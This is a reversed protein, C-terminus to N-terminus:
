AEPDLPWFLIMRAGGLQPSETASAKGQHWDMIKKVISLGLGHGGSARARSKDLRAFANFVGQRQKEPIGKGDDDVAVHCGLDSLALHIHIQTEAYRRANGVLNQVARHIYTEDYRPLSSATNEVSVRISLRDDCLERQEDAVRQILKPLDAEKLKVKVQGSDLRAYMLIEEILADLEDIDRDIKEQQKRRMSADDIDVLMEIAFRLRAVPTRLEHSVARIMEKQTNLLTSIRESMTRLTARLRGLSDDKYFTDEETTFDGRAIREVTDKTHQMRNEFKMALVFVVGAQIALASLVIFAIISAPLPDVVKIPGLKLVKDGVLAYGIRSGKHDNASRVLLRGTALRKVMASSLKPNSPDILHVPYDHKRRLTAIARDQDSPSLAKLHESVIELALALGTEPLARMTVSFASGEHSHVLLNMKTNALHHVLVQGALVAKREAPTLTLTDIGVEEISGDLRAEWDAILATREPGRAKKLFDQKLLQAPIATLESLHGKLRHDYVTQAIWNGILVTLVLSGVIGLYIKYFFSSPHRLHM